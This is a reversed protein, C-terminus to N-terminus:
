SHLAPSANQNQKLQWAQKNVTKRRFAVFFDGNKANKVGPRGGWLRLGAALRVIAPSFVCPNERIISVPTTASPQSRGHGCSEFDPLQVAALSCLAAM